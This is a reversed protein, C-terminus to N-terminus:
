DEDKVEEEINKLMEKYHKEVVKVDVKHAKAIEECLQVDLEGWAQLFFVGM